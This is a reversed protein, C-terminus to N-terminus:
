HVPLQRGVGALVEAARAVSSDSATLCLRVHGEHHFLPAPLVLLGREALSAAFRFDDREPSRPYLFYTGQSPEIEYGGEVMARLLVDRRRFISARDVEIELLRRVAIQM